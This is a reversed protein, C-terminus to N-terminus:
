IMHHRNHTHSSDSYYGEDNFLPMVRGCVPHKKCNCIHAYKNHYM